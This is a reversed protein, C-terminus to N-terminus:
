AEHRTSRRPGTLCLGLLVGIGLGAGLSFLVASKPDDRLRKEFKAASNHLCEHLNLRPAGETAEAATRTQTSENEM